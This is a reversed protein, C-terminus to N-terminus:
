HGHGAGGAPFVRHPGFRPGLWGHRDFRHGLPARGAFRRRPGAAIDFLTSGISLVIPSFGLICSWYVIETM